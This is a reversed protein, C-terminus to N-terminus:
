ILATNVYPFFKRGNGNGPYTVATTMLVTNSRIILVIHHKLSNEDPSYRCFVWMNDCTVKDKLISILVLVIRPLKVTKPIIEIKTFCSFM